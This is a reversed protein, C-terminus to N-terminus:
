ERCIVVCDMVDTPLGFAPYSTFYVDANGDADTIPSIIKLKIRKCWQDIIAVDEDTIGDLDGNILYALSYVPVKEISKNM